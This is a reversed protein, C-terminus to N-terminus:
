KTTINHKTNYMSQFESVNHYVVFSCKKCRNREENENCKTYLKIGANLCVWNVWLFFVCLIGEGGVQLFIEAVQRWRLPQFLERDFYLLQRLFDALLRGCAVTQHLHLANVLGVALQAIRHGDLTLQVFGLMLQLFQLGLQLLELRVQLLRVLNLLLLGLVTRQGISTYLVSLAYRPLHGM